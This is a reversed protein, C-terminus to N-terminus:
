LRGGKARIYDDVQRALLELPVTGTGLVVDHFDRMSFKDGLAKRAKERLEIIKLEGMMYSCAQGPWVVYREVESPEIGYDIAQQRTWHKAHLGTDVVLRRARFLESDLGGLLGEPDGDYWGSEAALHEAYLGWGEVLASITGFARIQRFRPLAPDEMELAIQFHHGPVTEHYVLSRLGYKTMREPRLPIQFLGPRSGDPSPANYNAAANNEVFRPFPRAIVPTKPTKDFLSQSRREADRLMNEVDTMIRKRGDETQPYALDKKLQEIREKLSGQTRGLKRFIADMENEIRAVERLGIEHIQEASLDTTTFRKLANAYAQDGGKFRSIGAEDSAKAALPELAAIGKQWAPYIQTSVIKEAESRLERRRADALGRIASMRQDFSTVFPNQAPASSVFQRMQTITAQLIFKPPFMGKAIRAQAEVIAESMRTGVQGLAAVYNVADRETALPHRVTLGEVLNVNAGNFQNLPFTFDLYPEQSAFSELQWKMLDASLRQAGTMKNRDFKSLEALGRRALQIREHQYASTQPTLQRELRDQEEGTFYRTATAAEPNGRMWEATFDRFFADINASSRESEASAQNGSGAPGAQNKRQQASLTWLSAVAAFVLVIRIAKTM